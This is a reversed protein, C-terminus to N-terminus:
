EENKCSRGPGLVFQMGARRAAEMFEVNPDGPYGFVHGVGAGKLYQVMVESVNMPTEKPIM